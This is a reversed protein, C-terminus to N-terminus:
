FQWFLGIIWGIGLVVILLWVIWRSVRFYRIDKLKQYCLLLVVLNIGVFLGGVLNALQAIKGFPLIAFFLIPLNTLLWAIKPKIGFDDTLGKKLYFSLSIFTTFINILALLIALIIFTQPLFKSLSQLSEESVNKGLFGFVSVSYLFYLVFVISLAWINIKRFLKTDKGILDYVLRISTFGTLAFILIGYSFFPQSYAISKLNLSLVSLNINPLIYLCTILFLSILLLSLISEIKALPNLSFYTVLAVIFFFALKIIVPNIPFIISVFIQVAILFVLFTLQMGVFDFLWVPFKFKHGILKSALGPLNHKEAVQFLIEGYVLHVLYMSLILFLFWFWFFIGSLSLAYPLVFVGLGVITSVILFIAEVTKTM